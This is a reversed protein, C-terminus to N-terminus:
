QSTEEYLIIDALGSYNFHTHTAEIDVTIINRQPVAELLFDINTPIRMQHDIVIILRQPTTLTIASLCNCMTFYALDSKLFDETLILVVKWSDRVAELIDDALCGGPVHDRDRLNLKIKGSTELEIRLENFVWSIISDTYIIYADYLFENRKKPYINQGIMRLLILKLKMKNKIFIFASILTVVVFSTGGMSVILWFGSVCYRQFAKWKTQVTKTYSMQGTIDMCSYNGGDLKVSTEELWILFGTSECDCSFTNGLLSLNLGNNFEATKDLMKRYNNGLTTFSNHSLDIFNLKGLSTLDPITILNNFALNIVRLTVLSSFIDSPLFVLDNDSLDFNELKKLQGFLGKGHQLIFGNDFQVCNLRLQKLNPFTDFFTKSTISMDNHSLDFIELSELGILTHNFDRFGSYSLNLFQVNTGNLFKIDWLPGANSSIGAINLSKIKPPLFLPLLIPSPVHGGHHVSLAEDVSLKRQLSIDVTELNSFFPVFFFSLISLGGFSIRNHRLNISKMCKILPCNFLPVGQLDLFIIDSSDLDIHSVCIPCLTKLHVSSGVAIYISDSQLNTISVTSMSKNQFVTLAKFINQLDGKMLSAGQMIFDTLNTLYKLSDRQFTQLSCGNLQIYTIQTKMLGKLTENTLTGLGCSFSTGHAVTDGLVLYRLKTLNSFGSKFVTRPGTDINLHRLNTLSGFAIDPLDNLPSRYFRSIDSRMSLNTLTHLPKFIDVPMSAESYNLVHGNFELRLLSSLGNFSSSQVTHIPNFSVDLYRLNVLHLFDGNYLITINNFTLDLDTTNVPLNDPVRLITM